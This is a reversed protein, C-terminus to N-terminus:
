KTPSLNNKDPDETIHTRVSLAQLYFMEQTILSLLYKSWKFTDSKIYATYCSGEITQDSRVM